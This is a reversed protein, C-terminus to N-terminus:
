REIDRPSTPVLKMNPPAVRAKGTIVSVDTLRRMSIGPEIVDQDGDTETYVSRILTCFIEYRLTRVYHFFVGLSCGLAEIILIVTECFPFTIHQSTYSFHGVIVCWSYLEQAGFLHTYLAPHFMM